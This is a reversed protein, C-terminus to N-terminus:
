CHQSDGDAEERIARQERASIPRETMIHQSAERTDAAELTVVRLVRGDIIRHQSM